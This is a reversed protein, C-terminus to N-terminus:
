APEWLSLLFQQFEPILLVEYINPRRNANGWIETFSIDQNFEELTLRFYRLVIELDLPKVWGYDPQVRERLLKQIKYYNDSVSKSRLIELHNVRESPNTIKSIEREIEDVTSDVGDFWTPNIKLATLRISSKNSLINFVPDISNLFLKGKKDYFKIAVLQNATNTEPELKFELNENLTKIKGNKGNITKEIESWFENAPYEQGRLEV